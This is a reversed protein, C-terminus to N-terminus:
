GIGKQLFNKVHIHIRPVSRVRGWHKIGYIKEQGGEKEGKEKREKQEQSGYGTNKKWTLFMRQTKGRNDWRRQVKDKHANKKEMWMKMQVRASNMMAGTWLRMAMITGKM